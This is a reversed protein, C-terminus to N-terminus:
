IRIRSTADDDCGTWTYGGVAHLAFASQTEDASTNSFEFRGFQYIGEFAYDWGDLAGPLSKIRVGASYIDRPSALPYQVPKEAAQNTPRPDTNRALFYLQSEQFPILTRTSAYLGSFRDHHDSTDFNTLDPIVPQSVFADVWFNTDQYRLKAADYSAASILGTPM